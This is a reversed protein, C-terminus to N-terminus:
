DEIEKEMQLLKAYREKLMYYWRLLRWGILIFFGMAFVGFFLTLYNLLDISGTLIELTNDMVTPITMMSLLILLIGSFKYMSISDSMDRILTKADHWLEDYIARLQPIEEEEENMIYVVIGM